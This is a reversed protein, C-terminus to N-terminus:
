QGGLDVAMALCWVLLWLNLRRGVGQKEGLSSRGGRLNAADWAICHLVAPLTTPVHCSVTVYDSVFDVGGDWSTYLCLIGAMVM